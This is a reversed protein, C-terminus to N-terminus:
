LGLALHPCPCLIGTPYTIKIMQMGMVRRRARPAHDRESCKQFSSVNSQRVRRYRNEPSRVRM